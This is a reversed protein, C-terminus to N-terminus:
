YEWINWSV